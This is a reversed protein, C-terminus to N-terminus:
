LCINKFNQESSIPSRSREPNLDKIFELFKKAMIVKLIAEEEHDINKKFIGNYMYQFDRGIRSTEEAWSLETVWDHRVRQSGMSLLMGPRGTWWCSGSNVWIWTWQTSLAMWDYWGRDDGEGARLREWCWPRKWILLNKEDPPWPVPTEAKADTWGVVIWSQNGKPHVPQTQM